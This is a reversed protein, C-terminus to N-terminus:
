NMFKQKLFITFAKMEERYENFKSLQQETSRIQQRDTGISRLRPISDNPIILINDYSTKRNEYFQNLLQNLPELCNIQLQIISNAIFWHKNRLDKLNEGEPIDYFDNCSLNPFKTKLLIEENNIQEQIDSFESMMKRVESPYTQIDIWPYAFGRDLHGECSGTTEIGMLNLAIVTDKIEKDIHCGIGDIWHSVEASMTDWMEQKTPNVQEAYLTISLVFILINFLVLAKKIYKFL